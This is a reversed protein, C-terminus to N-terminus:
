AARRPKAGCTFARGVARRPPEEDAAQAEGPPHSPADYTSEGTALNVYYTSGTSRSTKTDWGAPLAETM